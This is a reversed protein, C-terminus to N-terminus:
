DFLNRFLNDFNSDNLAQDNTTETSQTPETVSGGVSSRKEMEISKKFSCCAVIYQRKINTVQPTLKTFTQEKQLLMGLEDIFKADKKLDENECLIALQLMLSTHFPQQKDGQEGNNEPTKDPAENPVQGESNSEGELLDQDREVLVMEEGECDLLQDGEDAPASSSGNRGM